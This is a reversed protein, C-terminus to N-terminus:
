MEAEKWKFAIYVIYMNIAIELVGYFIYYVWTEGILNGINVLIYLISVLINVIKSTKAKFIVSFAIMLAPIAMLLGAVALNTQNAQLPGMLGEEIHGLHGPRYLSFIDAYIYLIMLSTWLAALKIKTNLEHTKM